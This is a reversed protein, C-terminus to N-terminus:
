YYNKDYVIHRSFSSGRARERKRLMVAAWERGTLHSPLPERAIRAGQMNYLLVYGDEVVFQAEACRGYFGRSPQPREIEVIVRQLDNKV